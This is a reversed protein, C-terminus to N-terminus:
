RFCTVADLQVMMLARMGDHDINKSLDWYYDGENAAPGKPAAEAEAEAVPVQEEAVPEVPEPAPEDAVPEEVLEM